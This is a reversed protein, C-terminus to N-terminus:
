YLWIGLNNVIATTSSITFSSPLTTIAYSAVIKASNTLDVTGIAANGSSAASNIQPATTQASSNYCLVLYYIGASASYTSSFTRTQWTNSSGVWCNNDNTTSAVLTCTGGSYSYLGIGNYNNATYVGSTSINFKVGTLTVSQPLYYAIVRSTGSTLSGALNMSQINPVSLNTGKITSGLAQLGQTQMWEYSTTPLYTSNDYSIITGSAKIFGTGNLQSQKSNISTYINTRSSDSRYKTYYTTSDSKQLYSSLSTTRAYPTLISATDTYKVKLNTQYLTSLKSTDASITKTSKSL